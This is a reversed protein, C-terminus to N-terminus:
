NMWELNETNEPLLHAQVIAHRGVPISQPTVIIDEVVGRDEEGRLPESVKKDEKGRLPRTVRQRAQTM